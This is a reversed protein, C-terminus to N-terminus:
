RSRGEELLETLRGHRIRYRRERLEEVKEYVNEWFRIEEMVSGLGREIMINFAHSRSRALGYKVMKDALEVLEKRVKISVTVSVAGGIISSIGLYVSILPENEM